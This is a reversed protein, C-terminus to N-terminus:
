LGNVKEKVTEYQRQFWDRTETAFNSNHVETLATKAKEALAQSAEAMQQGFNAFKQEITQEPDQAETYAVFALMLMAVALYVRM